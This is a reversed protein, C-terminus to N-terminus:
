IEYMIYWPYAVTKSLGRYLDIQYIQIQLQKNRFMCLEKNYKDKLVYGIDLM